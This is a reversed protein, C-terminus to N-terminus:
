FSRKALFQPCKECHRALNRLPALRNQLAIRTKCKSLQTQQLFIIFLYGKLSQCALMNNKLVCKETMFQTLNTVKYEPLEM